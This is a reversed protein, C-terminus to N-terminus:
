YIFGRTGAFRCGDWIGQGRDHGRSRELFSGVFVGVHHAGQWRTGGGLEAARVDVQRGAM